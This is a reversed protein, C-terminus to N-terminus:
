LIARRMPVEAKKGETFYSVEELYGSVRRIRKIDNSGCRNCKDFTGMNGCYNCIDYPFNFGLYSIGKSKAYEIADELALWNNLPASTLEIYTICGGNCLKHFPAELDIKEYITVKADVNVHFSNTYFGKEQTQHPYKKSDLECFRSSLMEGPSALLSFNKKETCRCTDMIKRMHKIIDYSLTFSDSTEFPKKGTLIEVCESLGIFGISLTGQEAMSCINETKWLRHKLVFGLYESGNELFKKSRDKLISIAQEMTHTLTKYFNDQDGHELAIRPLNISVCAINGRGIAGAEGCVNEYVRTRCGMIALKLPDCCKNVASDTLLYTPIMRKATCLLAKNYLYYNTTGKGNIKANVKYVINPRMYEIPASEFSELLIESIKRGWESTALGINLTVYYPERCYRTYTTNLWEIFEIIGEKLINASEECYRIELSDLREAFDVDFNSFGIGGSQNTALNIILNKLVEFLEFIKGETSICFAKRSAFYGALDPVCCNYVKGYAELDHIHLIGRQHLDSLEPPLSDLIREKEKKVGQEYLESVYNFRIAANEKMNIDMGKAESLCLVNHFHNRYQANQTITFKIILCGPIM